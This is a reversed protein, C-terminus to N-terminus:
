ANQGTQITTLLRLVAPKWKDYQEFSCHFNGLITEEELDFLFILSYLSGNLCFARFDMWAVSIMDSQIEGMDYFVNQKWIKRMDQQIEELRTLIGKNRDCIDEASLLSFTFSADGDWDTKIVQPRNVNRYKVARKLPSIDQMTEPLIMSCKESFLEERHVPVVNSGILINEEVSQNESAMEKYKQRLALIIRDRYASEQM